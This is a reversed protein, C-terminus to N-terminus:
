LEFLDTLPCRLLETNVCGVTFTSLRVITQHVVGQFDRVINEFRLELIEVSSECVPRIAVASDTVKLRYETFTHYRVLRAPRNKHIRVTNCRGRSVNYALVPYPAARCTRLCSKAGSKRHKLTGEGLRVPCIGGRKPLEAPRRVGHAPIGYSSCSGESRLVRYYVPLSSIVQDQLDVAPYSVPRPVEAKLLLLPASNLLNM